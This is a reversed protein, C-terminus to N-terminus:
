IWFLAMVKCGCEAFPARWVLLELGFAKILITSHHLPLVVPKPETMGPEFGPLVVGRKSKYSLQNSCCVWLRSTRPELGLQDVSFILCKRNERLHKKWTQTFLAYVNQKLRRKKDRLIMSNRYYMIIISYFRIFITFFFHLSPTKLCFFSTFLPQMRIKLMALIPLKGIKEYSQM